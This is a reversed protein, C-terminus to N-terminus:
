ADTMMESLEEYREIALDAKEAIEDRRVAGAFCIFVDAGAELDTAGDGVMVIRRGPNERRIGALVERKGHQRTLPSPITGAYRGDEMQIDVARLDSLPIDLCQALGALAPLLGGSVIYIRNGRERLGALLERAGQIINEIYLRSLETMEKESPQIMQLREAYIDELRIRGCMAQDTLRLIDDELGKMRALEVIGEIRSLTSDCDFVWVAAEALINKVVMKGFSESLLIL